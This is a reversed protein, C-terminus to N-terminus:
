LYIEMGMCAEGVKRKIEKYSESKSAHVRDDNINEQVSMMKM